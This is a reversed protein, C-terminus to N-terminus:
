AGRHYRRASFKPGGPGLAQWRRAHAAAEGQSDFLMVRGDMGKGWARHQGTVPLDTVCYIGWM